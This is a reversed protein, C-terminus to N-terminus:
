QEPLPVIEITEGDQNFKFNPNDFFTKQLFQLMSPYAVDLLESSDILIKLKYYTNTVPNHIYYGELNKLSFNDDFTTLQWIILSKHQYGTDTPFSLFFLFESLQSNPKIDKELEFFIEISQNNPGPVQSHALCVLSLLLFIFTKM